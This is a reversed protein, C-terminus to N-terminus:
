LGQAAEALHRAPDLLRTYHTRYERGSGERGPRAPHGDVARRQHAIGRIEEIREGALPDVTREAAGLEQRLGRTEGQLARADDAAAIQCRVAARPARGKGALPRDLAQDAVPHEEGAQEVPGHGPELTSAHGM